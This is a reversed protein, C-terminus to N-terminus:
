DKFLEYGEFSMSTMKEVTVTSGFRTYSGNISLKKEKGDFSLEVEGEGKNGNTLIFKTHDDNYKGTIIIGDGCRFQGSEAGILFCHNNDNQFKGNQEWWKKSNDWISTTDLQLANDNPYDGYNEANVVKYEFPVASLFLENLESKEGKEYWNLDGSLKSKSQVQTVTITIVGDKVTYTGKRGEAQHVDKGENTTEYLKYEFNTGNFTFYREYTTGDSYAKYARIQPVRNITVDFTKTDSSSNLTLTATVTHKTDIIDRHITFESKATDYSLCKEDGTRTWTIMVTKERIKVETQVTIIQDSYNEQRIIFNLQEKALSLTKEDSLETKKAILKVSFEKTRSQGKYSLTAKLTVTKDNEEPIILKKETSIVGTESCVWDVSVDSFGEITSPLEWEDVFEQAINLANYANLLTNDVNSQEEQQSNNPQPCSALVLTILIVFLFYILQKM